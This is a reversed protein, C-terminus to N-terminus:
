LVLLDPVVTNFNEQLYSTDIDVFCFPVTCIKNTLLFSPRSRTCNDNCGFSSVPLTVDFYRLLILDGDERRPNIENDRPMVLDLM